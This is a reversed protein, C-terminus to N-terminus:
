DQKFKRIDSKGSKELLIKVIREAARGDWFKPVRIRVSTGKIIKDAAKIIEDKKTSVLMNTGQEVTVPRETNNRLTICPIGLVTTEEQIGGSDTLVFKSSDMLCLFEIYGLPKTIIINPIKDLRGALGLSEINKGTRPHLTFVIKLKKGIEELVSMINEFSKKDDVNSPRHLTLVCYDGKKLNLEKLIKSEKAKERHKLLTDIMVNGVFFIKGKSVGENLLNKNASIETTFLFDSIKDTRIRNEEEPMTKDFSRLGAEVHAVKIGLEHAAEAGAVTSNVDGVVIVLDPKQRRLAASIAQKLLNRQEDVGVNTQCVLHEDPKPLKLEDFFLRSMSFDYHQGTHILVHQVNRHKKFEEVLPAIKMFNPRTGVISVIKM